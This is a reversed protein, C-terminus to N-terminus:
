VNNWWLRVMLVGKQILQQMLKNLLSCVYMYVGARARVRARVLVEMRVRARVCMCVFVFSM